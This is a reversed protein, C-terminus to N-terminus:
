WGKQKKNLFNRVIRRLEPVDISIGFVYLICASNVCGTKKDKRKTIRKVKYKEITGLYKLHFGLDRLEKKQGFVVGLYENGSEFRRIRSESLISLSDYVM